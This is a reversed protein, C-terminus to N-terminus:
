PQHVQVILIHVAGCDSNTLVLPLRIDRNFPRTEEFFQVEPQLANM